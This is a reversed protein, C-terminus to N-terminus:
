DTQQELQRKMDSMLARMEDLERQQRENDAIIAADQESLIEYESLSPRAPLQEDPISVQNDRALSGYATPIFIASLQIDLVSASGGTFTKLGLFYYTNSGETANFMSHVTVPHDFNGSPTADDIILEIDGNGPFTTAQNSVGYNVRSNVGNIHSISTEATAIVLVHGSTPANITVSAIQDPNTPLTSLSILSSGNVTEAAGVEDLIESSNISNSPLVVSFDGDTQTNLTIARDPGFLSMRSAESGLRNGELIIGAEGADNRAIEVYGGGGTSADHTLEIMGGGTPSLLLLLGADFSSQGYIARLEALENRIFIAPDQSPSGQIEIVGRASDMTIIEGNEYADQLSTGSRLAYNALPAPVIPQRPSLATFSGGDPAVSLNLWRTQNSDFVAGTVGFDVLAEFRGDTVLVDQVNQSGGFVINGGFPADYIIFSMDYIGNAPVGNDMLEGQYLFSDTITQAFTVSSAAAVACAAFTRIHM